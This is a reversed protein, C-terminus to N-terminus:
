NISLVIKTRIHGAERKTFAQQIDELRYVSDVFPTVVNSEILERLTDLRETTVHTMQSIATVGLEQAKEESVQATM